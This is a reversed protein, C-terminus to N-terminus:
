FYIKLFLPQDYFKECDSLWKNTVCLFGYNASLYTVCPFCCCRQREKRPREDRCGFKNSSVKIEWTIRPLIHCDAAAKGFVKYMIQFAAFSKFLDTGKIEVNNVFAERNIKRTKKEVM